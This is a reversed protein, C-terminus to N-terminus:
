EEKMSAALRKVLPHMLYTLLSREGTRFVVEVPMGPQMQRDGLTRMGEPTVAVRALYFSQQGSPDTLVDGSVSQVKGAVVLQPSHAFGAFRVDVDQGARVRDILNPAVRAELRLTEGAPVVDALKQAPQIVAGVSQVALGVIQGDAPARVETRALEEAAARLKEADAQLERYIEALNDGVEKRYEHKRQLARQGLEAISRQSRQLNGQLDAIAAQTDAVMRGLELQRNRPAYGEAVLGRTQELEEKLLALQSQRNALMGKFSEIAALQAARNEEIGALEAALAARRSAFLSQQALWQSQIVPDRQAAALDPHALMAPTGDREALLRAEAARLGLYRQRVAEYGARASADDLTMLLDDKRVQSGEGVLVRRVIGGVQHQVAKRKTDVVVNGPAPVGEDLPAFAAWGLVAVLGAASLMLGIRTARRAGVDPSIPTVAAPERLAATAELDDRLLPDPRNANPM